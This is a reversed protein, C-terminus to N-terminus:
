EGDVEVGTVTALGDHVAVTNGGPLRMVISGGGVHSVEGIVLEGALTSVRIGQGVRLSSLVERLAEGSMAVRASETVPPGAAQDMIAQQEAKSEQDEKELRARMAELDIEVGFPELLGVMIEQAVQVDIITNQGLAVLATTLQGVIQALDKAGQNPSGTGTGGAQGGGVAKSLSDSGFGSGVGLYSPISGLVGDGGAQQGGQDESARKKGEEVREKLEDATVNVGIEGLMVAIGELATGDDMWGAAKAMGLAQTTSFLAGSGRQLDKSSMEPAAVSFHLDAPDGSPLQGHLAAQHIAFRVLEEVISILVLQKQRLGKRTPDDMTTAVAKNVDMAGNLWTKSVGVGTAILSLVLDALTASDSAKLDPALAQWVENENHYRVSGPRPSAEAAAKQRLEDATAGKVVVDWVFSRMLSMREAEDFVLKDYLDTFDIVSLLSPRGRVAGRTKNIRWAFCGVLDTDGGLGPNWFKQGTDKGAIVVAEEPESGRMWGDEDPRIVKIYRTEGGEHEGGVSIAYAMDPQGPVRHIGRVTRPDVHVYVVDGSTKHVFAAVFQEGFVDLELQLDRIRQDMGNAPSSWFEALFKAVEEDKSSVSFNEGVIHDRIVQLARKAVPNKDYLWASLEQAREHVLPHLDGPAQTLRRYFAAGGGAAPLDIDPDHFGPDIFASEQLGVGAPSMAGLVEMLDM